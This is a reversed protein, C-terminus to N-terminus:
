KVREYLMEKFRQADIDLVLTVNPKHKLLGFRDSVMLGYSGESGYEIYSYVEVQETILDPHMAVMMTVPDPLDFGDKNWYTKNYAKLTRNCKVCFEAIKSGSSLLRAIDQEDIFADGTSVDWPVFTMPMGSNLVVQTAEADAYVNFEAVPSVNGPGFGTGAMLWVHKLKAAIDPALSLALAINTLPGLTVLELEGPNKRILEILKNVAHGNSASLHPTPLDLGGLGDNGHVGEASVPKRLLPKGAGAYVPPAYTSATEIAILANRVALELPVNGAVVTIAEVTVSVDRLAAILAVADDSATDTDILFRRM